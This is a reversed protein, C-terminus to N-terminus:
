AEPQEADAAPEVKYLGLLATGVVARVAPDRQWVPLEMGGQEENRLRVLWERSDTVFWDGGVGQPCTVNLRVKRLADRLAHLIQKNRNGATSVFAGGAATIRLIDVGELDLVM